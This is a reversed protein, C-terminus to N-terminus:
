LRLSRSGRHLVPLFKRVSQVIKLPMSLIKSLRITFMRRLFPWRLRKLLPRFIKSRQDPTLDDPSDYAIFFDQFDPNGDLFGRFMSSRSSCHNLVGDFMLDYSVGMNQIDQWTGLKPDVRRYDVVSFGRDSSYPFFPLIHLTNIAGLNNTDVFRHLTHLPTFGEEAVLLDGYTILIMDRETFRENPDFNKEAEIIEEPKHAYHVKMIRELEPMWAKAEDEGYLFRLRRLIGKRKESPIEFTPKTYDPDQHYLYRTLEGIEESCPKKSLSESNM